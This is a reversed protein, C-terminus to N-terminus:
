KAATGPMFYPQVVGDPFIVHMGKGHFDGREILWPQHWKWPTDEGEDFHTPIYTWEYEDREKQDGGKRQRDDTPCLWDKYPVGYEKMTTAWWKAVDGEDANELTKEPPQPWGHNIGVYAALATHINKMRGVCKAGEAQKIFKAYANVSFACLIAIIAVTVMVEILTFAKKNLRQHPSM